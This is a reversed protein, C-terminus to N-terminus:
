GAPRGTSLLPRQPRCCAGSMGVLGALRQSLTTLDENIVIEVRNPDFRAAKITPKRIAVTHVVSAIITRRDTSLEPWKDVIATTAETARMQKRNWTSRERRLTRATGRMQAVAPFVDEKVLIDAQYAEMLDLIKAEAAALEAERAV